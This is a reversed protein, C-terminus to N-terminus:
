EIRERPIKNKTKKTKKTHELIFKKEEDSTKFGM